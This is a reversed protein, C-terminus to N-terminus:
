APRRAEMVVFFNARDETRDIGRLTPDSSQGVVVREAGIFGARELETRLADEDYVYGAHHGWLSFTSRIVDVAHEAQVGAARLADLTAPDRRLYARVCGAADPTVTRIIGGPELARLSHGLFVRGAELSLHEIVNDSYVHSVTGPSFPWPRVVNLWYRTQFSIDTNIWGALDVGGSGIHVRYPPAQQGLLTALRREAFPRNLHRREWMMRYKVAGLNM